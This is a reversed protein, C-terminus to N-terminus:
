LRFECGRGPEVDDRVVPRDPDLVRTVVKVDGLSALPTFGAFAVLGGVLLEPPEFAVPRNRFRAGAVLAGVPRRIEAGAVPNVCVSGDVGVFGPLALPCFGENQGVPPVEKEDGVPVALCQQPVPPERERFVSDEPDDQRRHREGDEQPQGSDCLDEEARSSPLM